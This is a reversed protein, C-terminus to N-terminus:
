GADPRSDVWNLHADHLSDAFEELPRSLPDIGPDGNQDDHAQDARHGHPLAKLV